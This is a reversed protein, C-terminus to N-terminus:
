CNLIHISGNLLKRFLTWHNVHDYAKSADLFCTYVPSNHLNYYKIDSKVTFICLDTGRERKFGFQNDRTILQTKVKRMICHEFIKSLAMVIAIPRYNNKGSTDGQRNKLIPVIATKMLEAPMHGHTLMSTFLLSIHVSIGIHACVFHEASLGNICAVAKLSDLVDSALVTVIENNAIGHEIRECVFEKSDINQVSNLLASFHDQWMQAINKSGVSDGMNTALPVKSSNMGSVGKWFSVSDKCYLSRIRALADAIM